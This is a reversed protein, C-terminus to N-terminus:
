PLGYKYLFRIIYYLPKPYNVIGVKFSLLRLKVILRVMMTSYQNDLLNNSLDELLPVVITLDCKNLGDFIAKNVFSERLIFKILSNSTIPCDDYIERLLNSAFYCSQIIEVFYRLNKTTRTISGARCRAIYVLTPALVYTPNRRAALWFFTFDEFHTIGIPFKLSRLFSTRILKSVPGANWSFLARVFEEDKGSIIFKGQSFTEDVYETGEPNLETRYYARVLDIDNEVFAFMNELSFENFFTDDADVFTIWEGTAKSIGVNRANSVGQNKDLPIYVIREDNSAYKRITSDNEPNPSCDNIIIVEIDTYSQSLVSDLCDTLYNTPINYVPIIITILTHM